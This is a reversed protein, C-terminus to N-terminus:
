RQSKKNREIDLHSQILEGPHAIAGLLSLEGCLVTAAVILALKRSNKGPENDQTLGMSTLNEHVFPLEKGNGVTGVIINPISVSFYLADDRVECHVIGQSGEVINAADQGTALYFALLMNAFHANASRISGAAISGLLNKKIHVNVIAEPSVKLFRQCIKRPIILEAIVAKGRGLIGNIASVKKDTCMNGSIAVYSLEPHHELIWRQIHESALTVMNHGAADGTTFELRLFILNGIQEPHIRILKAFRSTKTVVDSLKEQNNLIDQLAKQAIIITPAEVTISRTMREDSIIACIGQGCHTSIRAGRDVSAWLPTEYTALPVHVRDTLEPGFIAIPGVTQMPVLANQM